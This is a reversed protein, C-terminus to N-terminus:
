RILGMRKVNPLFPIPRNWAHPWFVLLAKGLLYKQDVYNQNWMRADSSQASNDGMPFYQGEGLEFIQKQRLSFLRTTAWSEPRAYITKVLQFETPESANGL